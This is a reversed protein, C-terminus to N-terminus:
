AYKVERSSHDIVYEYKQSWPRGYVTEEFKQGGDEYASALLLYDETSAPNVVVIIAGFVM